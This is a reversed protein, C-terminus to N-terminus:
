TTTRQNSSTTATETLAMIRLSELGTTLQAIEEPLLGRQMRFPGALIAECSKALLGTATFGVTSGIGGVDHVWRYAVTVADIADNGEGAMRALAACTQEIRAALSLAFRTRIGMLRAEFEAENPTSRIQPSNM